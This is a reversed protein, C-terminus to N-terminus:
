PVSRYRRLALFPQPYQTYFTHIPQFILSNHSATTLRPGPGAPAHVWWGGPGPTNAVAGVRYPLGNVHLCYRTSTWGNRARRIRALPCIGAVGPPLSCVLPPPRAMRFPSATPGASRSRARRCQLHHRLGPCAQMGAADAYARTEASVRLGSPYHTRPTHPSSHLHPPAGILRWGRSVPTSVLASGRAPSLPLGLSCDLPRKKQIIPLM